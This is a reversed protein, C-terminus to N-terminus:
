LLNSVFLQPTGLRELLPPLGRTGHGLSFSFSRRTTYFLLLLSFPSLLPLSLPLSFFYFLLSSRSYSLSVLLLPSHFSFSPFSSLLSIIDPPEELKRFLAGCYISTRVTTYEQETLQLKFRTCAVSLPSRKSYHFAISFSFVPRPITSQIFTLKRIFRNDSCRTQM